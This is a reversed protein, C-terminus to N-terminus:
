MCRCLQTHNRQVIIWLLGDMSCVECRRILHRILSGQLLCCDTFYQLNIFDIACFGSQQGCALAYSAILIIEALM